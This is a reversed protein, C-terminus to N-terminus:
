RVPCGPRRWRRQARPLRAGAAVFREPARLFEVLERLEGVAEEIGAVDSFRTPPVQAQQSHGNTIRAPDAVGAGGPLRARRAGMLLLGALLLLLIAPMALSMLTQAAGGPRPGVARVDVGGALLRVTLEPAFGAPYAAQYAAGDRLMGRVLHAQDDVTASDIQGSRARKLLESLSLARPAPAPKAFM